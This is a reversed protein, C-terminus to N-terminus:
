SAGMSNGSASLPRVMVIRLAPDLGHAAETTRIALLGESLHDADVVLFGLRQYYPGNWPVDSFTTLTLAALSHEAAWAGVADILRSGIRRGAFDPDVSVQEIHANGDVLDVIIYGVVRDGDGAVASWARGGTIYAALEHAPLAEYGAIEPMGVDIFARGAAVEVAQMDPIDALRGARITVDDM